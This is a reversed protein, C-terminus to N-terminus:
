CTAASARFEISDDHSSVSSFTASSVSSSSAAPAIWSYRLPGSYANLGMGPALAFPLKAWLAMILTGFAAAMCTVTVLHPFAGDFDIANSLIAPNVIIIYAM